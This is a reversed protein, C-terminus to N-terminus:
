IAEIQNVVQPPAFEPFVDVSMRQLTFAGAIFLIITLALVILRNHLAWAILLNFM